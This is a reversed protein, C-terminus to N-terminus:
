PTPSAADFFNLRARRPSVWHQVFADNALMAGVLASHVARM